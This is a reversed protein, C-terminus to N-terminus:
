IEHGAGTKDNLLELWVRARAESLTLCGEVVSLACGQFSAYFLADPASVGRETRTGSGQFCLSYSNPTFLRFASYLLM